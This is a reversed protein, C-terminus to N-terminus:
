DSEADLFEDSDSDDEESAEGAAVNTLGKKGVAVAPAPEGETSKNASNASFGPLKVVVSPLGMAPIVPMSVTPMKFWGSGGGEAGDSSGDDNSPSGGGYKARVATYEASKLRPDMAM